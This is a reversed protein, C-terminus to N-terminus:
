STSLSANGRGSIRFFYENGRRELKQLSGENKPEQDRPLLGMGRTEAEMTVDKELVAAERKREREGGSWDGFGGDPRAHWAGAM